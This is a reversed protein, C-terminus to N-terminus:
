RGLWYILPTLTLPSLFTTLVVAATTMELDLDYQMAIVTTIVAAPMSAELVGARLADGNLGFLGALLWAVAPAVILQLVVSAGVPIWQRGVLSQLRSASIQMGLVILMVPIAADGMLAVAREVPLPLTWGALRLIEAAIVAYFAPVKLLERAAAAAQARGLGAIFVGATYVAFTSAIFFALAYSLAEAGFAFKVIALGFNGGNVFTASVVLTALRRRDLGLAWGVAAGCLLMALIVTWTFGTMQALAGGGVESNLLSDFIFCPSFIYFVIQSVSRVDLHSRRHIAYGLGACILVPLLNDLFIATMATYALRVFVGRM